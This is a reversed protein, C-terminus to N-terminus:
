RAEGEMTPAVEGVSPREVQPLFPIDVEAPGTVARPEEVLRRVDVVAAGAARVPRGPLSPGDIAQPPAAGAEWTVVPLSAAGSALAVLVGVCGHLHARATQRGFRLFKLFKRHWSM